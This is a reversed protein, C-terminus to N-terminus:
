LEARAKNAILQIATALGSIPNALTAVTVKFIDPAMAALGALWRQVKDPNAAEGKQAEAELRKVTDKIEDKDVKPDDPRADIQRQINAFAEILKQLQDGSLGTSTTTTTTTIKDRGVIDGGAHQTVTKNGGVYDGGINLDGEVLSGGGTNVVRQGGSLVDGHAQPQGGHHIDGSQPDKPKDHSM